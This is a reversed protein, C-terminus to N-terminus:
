SDLVIFIEWFNKFQLFVKIFIFNKYIIALKVINFSDSIYGRVTYLCLIFM